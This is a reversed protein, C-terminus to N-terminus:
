IYTNNSNWGSVSEQLTLRLVCSVTMCKVLLAALKGNGVFGSCTASSLSFCEVHGRAPKENKM